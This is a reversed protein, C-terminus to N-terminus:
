ASREVDISVEDGQGEHRAQYYRKINDIDTGKKTEIKYVYIKSVKVTIKFPAKTDQDTILDTMATPAQHNIDREAVSIITNQMNKALVDPAQLNASEQEDRRKQDELKRHNDELEAKQKALAADIERQKEAELKKRMRDEAETKRKCEAAVLSDLCSDFNDNYLFSEVSARSLTPNIDAKLCKNEMAMLRSEILVQQAKDQKARNNVEGLAAKTLNGSDTMSTLKVLDSVRAGRFEEAINQLRWQREMESVLLISIKDKTANEFAKVQEDAEARVGLIKDILRKCNSKFPDINVSAAAVAEAMKDKVEAALKNLSTNRKKQDACNELTVVVREKDLLADLRAELETFNTTLQAPIVTVNFKGVRLEKSQTQENM